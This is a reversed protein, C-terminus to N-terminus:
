YPLTRMAEPSLIVLGDTSPALSATTATVHNDEAAHDMLNAAVLVSGDAKDLLRAACGDVGPTIEVITASGDEVVIDLVFERTEHAYRCLINGTIFDVVWAGAAYRGSPQWRDLVAQMSAPNTSCQESDAYVTGDGYRFRIVADDSGTVRWIPYTGDDTAAAVIGADGIRIMDTDIGAPMDWQKAGDVFYGTSNVFEGPRWDWTQSYFYSGGSTSMTEGSVWDISDVYRKHVVADDYFVTEGSRYIRTWTGGVPSDWFRINLTGALGHSADITPESGSFDIVMYEAGISCVAVSSSIVASIAPDLRGNIVDTWSGTVATIAYGFGDYYALLTDGFSIATSTGDIRVLPGRQKTLDVPWPCRPLYWTVAGGTTARSWGISYADWQQRTTTVLPYECDGGFVTSGDTIVPDRVYFSGSVLAAASPARTYAGTTYNIKDKSTWFGDGDPFYSPRVGSVSTAGTATRSIFSGSSDLVTFWYKTGSAWVGGSSNQAHHFVVLDGNEMEYVFYIPTNSDAWELILTGDVNYSKFGYKTPTTYSPASWAMQGWVFVTTGRCDMGDLPGRKYNVDVPVTDYPKLPRPTWYNLNGDSDWHWLDVFFHEIPKPLESHIDCCCDDTM